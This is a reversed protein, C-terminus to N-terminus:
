DWDTVNGNEAEEFPDIVGEEPIKDYDLVPHELAKAMWELSQKLEAMNSGSPGTTDETIMFVKKNKDYYAEHIGYQDERYEDKGGEDHVFTRKVVRHNWSM